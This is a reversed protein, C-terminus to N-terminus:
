PDNHHPQHPPSASRFLSFYQRRSQIRPQILVIHVSFLIRSEGTGSQPCWTVLQKLSGSSAKEMLISQVRSSSVGIRKRQTIKAVAMPFCVLSMVQKFACSCIHRASHRTFFVPVSFYENRKPPRRPGCHLGPLTKLKQLTVGLSPHRPHGSLM